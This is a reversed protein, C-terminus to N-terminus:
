WGHVNHRCVEPRAKHEWALRAAGRPYSTTASGFTQTPPATSSPQPHMQSPRQPQPLSSMSGSFAPHQQPQLQRVPSNMHQLQGMSAARDRLPYQQQPLPDAREPSDSSSPGKLSLSRRPKHRPRSLEPTLYKPKEGVVKVNQVSFARTPTRDVLPSGAWSSPLHQTSSTPTRPLIRGSSSSGYSSHPSIKAPSSHPLTSAPPTPPYTPGNPLGDQPQRVAATSAGPHTGMALSTLHTNIEQIHRLSGGEEESGQELLALLEEARMQLSYLLSHVVLELGGRITCLSPLNSIAALVHVEQSHQRSALEQEELKLQQLRDGFWQQTRQLM